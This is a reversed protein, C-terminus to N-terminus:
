AEGKMRSDRLYAKVFMRDEENWEMLHGVGAFMSYILWGDGQLIELAETPSDVGRVETASTHVCNMRVLIYRQFRQDRPADM